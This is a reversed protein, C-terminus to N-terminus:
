KPLEAFQGDFWSGAPRKVHTSPLWKSWGLRKIMHREFWVGDARMSLQKNPGFNFIPTTTKM